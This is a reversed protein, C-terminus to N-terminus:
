GKEIEILGDDGVVPSRGGCAQSGMTLIKASEEGYVEPRDWFGVGHHNRTLWFDHGAQEEKGKFLEGFGWQFDRCESWATARALPSLDDLSYNSDLPEGGSPTSEDNEAWLMATLYAQTFPDFEMPKVTQATNCTQM